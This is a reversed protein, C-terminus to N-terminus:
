FALSVEVLTKFWTLSIFRHWSITEVETFALCSYINSPKETPMNIRSCCNIRLSHVSKIISAVKKYGHLMKKGGLIYLLVNFAAFTRIVERQEWM